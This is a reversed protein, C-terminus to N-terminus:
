TLYCGVGFSSSLFVQTGAESNGSKAQLATEPGQHLYIATIAGIPNQMVIDRSTNLWIIRYEGAMDVDGGEYKLKM